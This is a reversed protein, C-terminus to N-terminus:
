PAQETVIKIEGPKVMGLSERAVREVYADSQSFALEGQLRQLDAEWQGDIQELRAIEELQRNTSIKHMFHRAGMIMILALVLIFGFRPQIRFRIRRRHM